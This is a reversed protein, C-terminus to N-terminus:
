PAVPGLTNTIPALYGNLVPNYIATGADMDDGGAYRFGAPMQFADRPDAPQQPAIPQDVRAIPLIDAQYQSPDPEPPLDPMGMSRRWEGVEANIQEQTKPALQTVPPALFEPAIPTPAPAPQYAPPNRQDMMWQTWPKIDMTDIAYGDRAIQEAQRQQNQMMSEYMWDPM